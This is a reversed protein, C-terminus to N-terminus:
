LGLEGLINQVLQMLQTANEPDINQMANLSAQDMSGSFWTLAFTYASLLISSVVIGSAHWLLGTESPKPLLHKAKDKMAGANLQLIDLLWGFGMLGGTLLYTLGSIWKGLAFRHLGLIGGFLTLRLFQDSDHESMPYFKGGKGVFWRGDEDRYMGRNRADELLIRDWVKELSASGWVSPGNLTHSFIADNLEADSLFVGDTGSNYVGEDRLYIMIRSTRFFESLAQQLKASDVSSDEGVIAYVGSCGVYLAELEACSMRVPSCVSLKDELQTCECVVYEAM